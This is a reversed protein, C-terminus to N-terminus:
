YKRTHPSSGLLAEAQLRGTATLADKKTILKAKLLRSIVSRLVAPSIGLTKAMADRDLTKGDVTHIEMLLRDQQSMQRKPAQSGLMTALVREGDEVPVLLGGDTHKWLM